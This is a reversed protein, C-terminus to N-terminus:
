IILPNIICNPSKNSCIDDNKDVKQAQNNLNNVTCNLKPPSSIDNHDINKPSPTVTKMVTNIILTNVYPTNICSKILKTNLKKLSMYSLITLKKVVLPFLVNKALKMSLFINSPVSIFM